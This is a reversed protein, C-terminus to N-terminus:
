RAPTVGATAKLFRVQAAPDSSGGYPRLTWQEHVTMSEGPKLTRYPGHFELEYFDDGEGKMFYVEAPSHEPALETDPTRNMTRTMVWNHGFVVYRCEAPWLFVKGYRKKDASILPSAADFTVYGDIWRVPQLLSGDRDRRWTTGGIRMNSSLKMPVYPRADLNFRGLTWLDWSVDSETVNTATVHVEVTGADTVEYIKVLRIGSAKSAPSQLTVRTASQELVTYPTENLEKDPPWNWKSQPGLWVSFGASASTATLDTTGTKPDVKDPRALLVNEQGPMGFGVVSGGSDTRVTLVVHDNSLVVNTRPDGPMTAPVAPRRVSTCGALLAVAVIAHFRIVIASMRITM